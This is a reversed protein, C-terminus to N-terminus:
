NSFPNRASSSSSGLRIEILANFGGPEKAPEGQPKRMPLARQPIRGYTQEALGFVGARLLLGARPL